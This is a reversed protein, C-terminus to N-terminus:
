PVVPVVDDFIVANRQDGQNQLAIVAVAEISYPIKMTFSGDSASVTEGRLVGTRKDIAIVRRAIGVASSNEVTGRIERWTDRFRPQFFTDAAGRMFMTPLNLSINRAWATDLAINYHATQGGTVGISGLDSM